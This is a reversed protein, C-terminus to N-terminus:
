AEEVPRVVWKLQQESEKGCLPCVGNISGIEQDSELVASIFIGKCRDCEAIYHNDINNETEINPADEFIDESDEEEQLDDIDDQIEEIDDSLGDVDDSPEEDDITFDFEDDDAAAIYKNKYVFTSASIASSKSSQTYAEYLEDALEFVTGEIYINDGETFYRWVFEFKRDPEDRNIVTAKCTVYSKEATEIDEDHKYVIKLSKLTIKHIDKVVKIMDFMDVAAYQKIASLVSM